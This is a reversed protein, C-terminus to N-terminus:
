VKKIKLDYGYVSKLVAVLERTRKASVLYVTDLIKGDKFVIQLFQREIRGSRTVDIISFARLHDIQDISTHTAPFSRWRRYSVQEETVVLYTSYAVLNLLFVFLCTSISINGIWTFWKKVEIGGDKRSLLAAFREKGLMRMFVTCVIIALPFGLILGSMLSYGLSDSMRSEFLYASRYNVSVSFLGYQLLGVGIGTIISVVLYISKYKYGIDKQHEATHSVDIEDIESLKFLQERILWFYRYIVVLLILPFFIAIFTTLFAGM